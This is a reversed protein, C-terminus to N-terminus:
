IVSLIASVIEKGLERSTLKQEFLRRGNEGIEQAREPQNKMQLIKAAIDEPDALNVMLCDKGDTFLESVSRTKGTIYPMGLALSEFAKHPITRNLRDHKEFQGLSVHCEQMKQYLKESDLHKPIWYLNTPKLTDIQEGVEYELLGNGIILVDVGQHELLKAAKVIHRVGAEPLFKGRFVATFKARKQIFHDPKVAEEDVGTFVRFVKATDLSFRNVFFEKQANTEVLIADAYKAALKDIINIWARMLPNTKYKGRSIVEGEYLTCLADFVVPKKGALFKAFPVMIHSPYGVIMADYGGLKIVDRHKMWLKWFKIIGKSTDRCEIIEVGNQRLGSMYVKNRGFDPDYIGFYCLKM